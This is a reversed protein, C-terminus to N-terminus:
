WAIRARGTARLMKSLLQIYIPQYGIVALAERASCPVVNASAWAGQTFRFSEFITALGTYGKTRRAAGRPESARVTYRGALARAARAM